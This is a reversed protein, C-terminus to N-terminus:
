AKEDLKRMEDRIQAAREYAEEKVAQDLAKQLKERRTLPKRQRVKEEWERLFQIEQSQAMLETRGHDEYFGEIANIGGQLQKLALDYDREQLSLSVRARTNMMLVYPRYQESSWKDDQPGYKWLMDFVALNRDTDRVVGVWDELFFLSLYRHYYQLSEMRLRNAEADSLSWGQDTGKRQVYRQLADRYFDLLSEFGHPRKGDPRGEAEMQLLGLDLRMQIKDKHDDGTIRRVNMEDPKYAWNKLIHMIDQSKEEAMNASGAVVLSM